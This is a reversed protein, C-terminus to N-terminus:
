LAPYKILGTKNMEAVKRKIKHKHDLLIARACGHNIRSLYDGYKKFSKLERKYVDQYSQNMKYKLYLHSVDCKRRKYFALLKRDPIPSIEKKIQEIMEDLEEHFENKQIFLRHYFNKIIVRKEKQYRIKYIFASKYNRVRLKELLKITKRKESLKM